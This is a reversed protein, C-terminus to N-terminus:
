EGESFIDQSFFFFFGWFHQVRTPNSGAVGPNKQKKTNDLIGSVTTLPSSIDAIEPSTRLNGSSHDRERLNQSEGTWRLFNNVAVQKVWNTPRWVATQSTVMDRGTIINPFLLPYMGLHTTQGKSMWDHSPPIPILDCVWYYCNRQRGIKSRLQQLACKFM